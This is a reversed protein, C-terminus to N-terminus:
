KCFATKLIYYITCQSEVTLRNDALSLQDHCSRYPFSGALPKKRIHYLSYLLVAISYTYIVFTDSHFTKGPNRVGKKPFYATCASMNKRM